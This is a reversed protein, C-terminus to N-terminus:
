GEMGEQRGSALTNAAQVAEESTFDGNHLKLLIGRFGDHEADMRATQINM